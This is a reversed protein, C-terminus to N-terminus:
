KSGFGMPLTYIQLLYRRKYTKCVQSVVKQLVNEISGRNVLHEPTELYEASQLM